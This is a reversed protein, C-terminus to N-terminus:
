ADGDKFYLKISAGNNAAANFYTNKLQSQESDDGETSTNLMSYNTIKINDKILDLVDDIDHCNDLQDM